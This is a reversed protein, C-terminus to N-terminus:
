KKDFNNNWYWQHYIHFLTCKEESALMITFHLSVNTSSFTEVLYFFTVCKLTFCLMQIRRLEKINKGPRPLLGAMKNILFFNVSCIDQVHGLVEFLGSESIVYSSRKGKALSRV